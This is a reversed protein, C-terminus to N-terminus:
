PNSSAEPKPSAQPNSSAEPKPSAQPNSSAEPKPSAQPNSSAEPKPSAQPNSSAEPKPSTQTNGPTPTGTLSGPLRSDGQFHVPVLYTQAKGTAPLRSGRITSLALSDFVEEKGSSSVVKNSTINGKDDVNVKVVVEYNVGASCANAPCSGSVPPLIELNQQESDTLNQALQEVIKRNYPDYVNPNSNGTSNQGPTPVAAQTTGTSSTTPNITSIRWPYERGPVGLNAAGSLSINPPYGSQGNTQNSPESPATMAISNDPPVWLPAPNIGGILSSLDPRSARWSGPIPAIVVPEMGQPVTPSKLTLQQQKSSQAQQKPLQPMAPLSLASSGPPLPGIPPLNLPYLDKSSLSPLSTSPASPLPYLSQLQNPFSPLPAPQPLRSQEAPSLEVLRVNRLPGQKEQSALPLYPLSVGVLAHIGISAMVAIGTPQFLKLPLTKILSPFSKTFSAYSM